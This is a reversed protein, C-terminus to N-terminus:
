FRSFYERAQWADKDEAAEHREVESRKVRTLWDVVTAGFAAVLAEDEALATLAEGLSTPLMAAASRAYPAGTAPPSTSAREIGDLGAHIQAAMYLYPNASPEGIRNEIRTAPDGCRGLVRLMAGRNDRGWTVSQPAMVNPRFRGYANITPACFVAMGRGHALLGALWRDGVASLTAQADADGSGAAPSARRFVNSGTALDVLSHHLHWGSAIVNPFPPRCVFSAHYGARRLAQRVGNRFLVMQDAATLADSPDFVAEVQSPGLEIELSRLPLGLDQATQQVIRLAEDSMDAWGEALLNYGPHIMSVAPPEGPWAARAPDLSADNDPATLRYIHFEVELGCQLGYGARALRGLAQQLIHRTDIPVPSGDEFRAEARLWGTGPAWPLVRFSAPDPVLLLNNAFGFGPLGDTSGPEFVRYTTKDSTDKLLITSVMGVGSEFAGPVAAPVLTKGRLVGHLDCWGIRVLDLGEAEVRLLVGECAAARSAGSGAHGAVPWTV